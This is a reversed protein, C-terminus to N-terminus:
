RIKNLGCGCRRQMCIMRKKGKMYVLIRTAHLLGSCAGLGRLARHLRAIFASEHGEETFSGFRNWRGRM